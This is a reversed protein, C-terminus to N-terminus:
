VIYVIFINAVLYLSDTSPIPWMSNIEKPSVSEARPYARGWSSYLDINVRYSVYILVNIM